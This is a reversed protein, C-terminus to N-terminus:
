ANAFRLWCNCSNIIFREFVRNENIYLKESLIKRPYDKDMFEGIDMSVSYDVLLDGDIFRIAFDTSEGRSGTNPILELSFSAQNPNFANDSNKINGRLIILRFTDMAGILNTKGSANAGYIVASSLVKYTKKGARQSFVSYDLGTQKPAPIMSFITEKKFSQNFILKGITTILYMGNQKSTFCTKGLAKAPIAIRTHLHVQKNDYAIMAENYDKYVHGEAHGFRRWMAAKDADGLSEIIDAHDLFEKETEEMHLYFNGLVMDQSPTVIPKGDKPGLINNNAMM